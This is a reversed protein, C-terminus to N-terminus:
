FNIVIRKVVSGTKVIYVGASAVRFEASVRAADRCILKGMADYVFIEETANEVVITNDYAYINIANAAYEAVATGKEPTEALKTGAATRTDTEGCGRECVATETGDATTTADNNYTYKEFKHGIAVVDEQAVLVANCVSCHKGETKGATTCTAAVAADVVENHGTAAVEQQAVLTENCVSCHKGETKGAITCTAAIAADVVETHGLAAVTDIYIVDNCRACTLEKYGLNTCTSAHSVTDYAHGLAPIALTYHFYDCHCVPCFIVSDKSGATTCTASIINEIKYTQTCAEFSATYTKSETVNVTLPNGGGAEGWSVNNLHYGAAAKTARLTVTGNTTEALYWLSGDTSEVAYNEGTLTIEGIHSNENKIRIVKCGWNGNGQCKTSWNAPKEKAESYVECGLFAQQGVSNVSEHILVKCDTNDPGITAFAWAGINTVTNPVCILDLNYCHEFAAVGISVLGEPIIVSKLQQCASFAAAGYTAGGVTGAIFKCDHHVTCSTINSEPRSGTTSQPKAQILCMYPNEATGLYQANDYENYSLAKCGSFANEYICKCDSSLICSKIGTSKAKILIVYRSETNGLYLANDFTNYTLTCGEFAHYGVGQITNPVILKKLNSCGSFAEEGIYTVTYTVGSNNITSPITVNGSLNYAKSVSVEHKKADIVTYKLGDVIFSKQALAKGAFIALFMLALIRKM